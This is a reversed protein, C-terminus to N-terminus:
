EGSLGAPVVIHPQAWNTAVAFFFRNNFEIWFLLQAVANEGRPFYKNLVQATLCSNRCSLNSYNGRPGTESSSTQVTPSPERQGPRDTPGAGYFGVGIM